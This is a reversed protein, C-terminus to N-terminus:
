CNFGCYLCINNGESKAGKCRRFKHTCSSTGTYLFDTVGFTDIDHIKSKSKYKNM